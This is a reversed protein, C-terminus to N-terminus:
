KRAEVIVQIPVNTFVGPAGQIIEATLDVQVKAYVKDAYEPFLGYRATNYAKALMRLERSDGKRFLLVMEYNGAEFYQYGFGAYLVATPRAGAIDRPTEKIIIGDIIVRAIQDDDLEPDITMVYIENDQATYMDQNEPTTSLEVDLIKTMVLTYERDRGVRVTDSAQLGSDDTVTVRFEYDNGILGTVYTSLSDPSVITVGTPDGNILEWLVTVITGDPDSATAVLTIAASGTLLKKDPGADVIPPLNETVAEGYFNQSLILTTQYRDLHQQCDLVYWVKDGDYNFLILDGPDVFGTCTGSLVPHPKNFLRRVTEVFARGYRKHSIGYFDDCWSQWQAVNSPIPAYERLIISMSDGDQVLGGFDDADYQLYMEESGLYNYIHGLVLLPTGNVTIHGSHALATKLTGITLKIYNGDANDMTVLNNVTLQDYVDGQDSLPAMRIANALQRMDDHIYLDLEEAKTYNADITDTYQQREDVSIPICEVRDLIIGTIKAGSQAQPQYFRINYYATVPAIMSISLSAKRDTGFGLQYRLDDKNAGNQNSYLIVENGNSPDTYYIDYPLLKNWYGNLVLEEVTQGTSGTGNWYNSCQISWDLRDGAALPVEKRLKITNAISGAPELYTKGDKARYKPTFGVNSYVWHHNVLITDNPVVYGDNEAKYVESDIVSKDLDHTATITKLPTNTTIRPVALFKNKILDRPSREVTVNGIFNGLHDYRDYVMTFANLKNLGHVYWAGKEQQIRCIGGEMLKELIAYADDRDKEGKFQSGDLYDQHWMPAIENRLAPNVYIDLELGTLKLIEALVEILTKEREYFANPLYQNKLTGLGCTAVFSVFFSGVKYPEDYSDPLLHGQWLINGTDEDIMKVWFQREDQTNLHGFFADQFNAVEMNFSLESGLIHELKNNSGLWALNISSREGVEFNTQANLDSRDFINISFPM